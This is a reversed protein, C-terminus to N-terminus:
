IFDQNLEIRKSERSNKNVNNDERQNITSLSKDAPLDILNSIWDQNVGTSDTSNNIRLDKMRRICYYFLPIMGTYFGELGLFDELLCNDYSYKIQDVGYNITVYANM